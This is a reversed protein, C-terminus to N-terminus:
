PAVVEVIYTRVEAPEADWPRGFSCRLTGEGLARAAIRVSQRPPTAPDLWQAVLALVDAPVEVRWTHAPAGGMPLRLEFEKGLRVRLRKPPVEVAPPPTATEASPAPAPEEGVLAGAPREELAPDWGPPPPNPTASVCVWGDREEVAHTPLYGPHLKWLNERRAVRSPVLNEGTEPDYMYNHRPCRVKGDVFTAQHLDTTEHPCSAAFAVVRGDALRGVLVSREGVSVDCLHSDLGEGSALDASPMVRVFEDHAGM